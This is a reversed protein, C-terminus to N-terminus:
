VKEPRICEGTTTSQFIVFFGSTNEFLSTPVYVCVEAINEPPKKETTPLAYCIYKAKLNEYLVGVLYFSEGETVKVWDSYPFVEKLSEDKPYKEFLEDIEHKVSQYYGDTDVAFATRLPSDDDNEPVDAVAQEQTQNETEVPVHNCSEISHVRENEEEQAYYNESAIQEDEYSTSLPPTPSKPSASEREVPFISQVLKRFEYTRNGQIGCAIPVIEKKAFCIIGCFGGSLDLDSVINFISKGHMPLIETRDQSDAIICYYEGSSLPAFNIVSVEISINKGYQEVKILGSLSKGDSSFGQKIQRLICMKKIFVM